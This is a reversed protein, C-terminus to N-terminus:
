DLRKDLQGNVKFVRGKKTYVSHLFSPLVLKPWNVHQMGNSWCQYVSVILSVLSFLFLFGSPVLPKSKPTAFFSIFMLLLSGLIMYPMCQIKLPRYDTNYHFDPSPTFNGLVLDYADQRPGDFYNNLLYRKASNMFDQFAGRRSRKGTRTFDTKLAGTGSYSRSVLDANDSWINRFIRELPLVSQVPQNEGLIGCQRLQKTLMWRGVCSQVVNTRDLCDMCNTRVVSTQHSLVKHAQPDLTTYGQNELEPEIADLLLSVRDWRMKSCEKHFDFYHYHIKPDDLLKVIGEYSQKVPLEHGKDNVLNVLTQEGYISIQEDFHKRAAPLATPVPNTILMPKYRLHNVEAWYVPVSGRTQVHAFTVDTNRDSVITVQETENFNAVNGNADLGRTFYRTGARRKSRRSILALTVARGKIMTSASNIFGYIMPTIFQAVQPFAKACEIFDQCAFENWFFRKDSKIYNPENSENLCSRQLSNTLDWTYSFYFPGTGLHRVLLNYLDLEDQDEPYGGHYPIVEFKDVRYIRHGLIQAACTKETALIIYKDRKLQVAGFLTVSNAKTRKITEFEEPEVVIKGTDRHITMRCDERRLTFVNQKAEFQVM